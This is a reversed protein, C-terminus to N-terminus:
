EGGTHQSVASAAEPRATLVRTAVMSALVISAAFALAVPREWWRRPALGLARTVSARLRARAMDSPEPGQEGTEIARKTALFAAVCASCSVLHAEVDARRDSTGFHFAVHEHRLDDCTTTM